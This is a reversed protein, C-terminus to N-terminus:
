EYWYSHQNIPIPDCYLGRQAIQGKAHAPTVVNTAVLQWVTRYPLRERFLGANTMLQYGGTEFVDVYSSVRSM